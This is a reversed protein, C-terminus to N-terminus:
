IMSWSANGFSANFGGYYDCRSSVLSHIYIVGGGGVGVHTVYVSGSISM